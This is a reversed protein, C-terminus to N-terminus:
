EEDNLHQYQIQSSLAAVGLPPIDHARVDAAIGVEDVVDFFGLYAAHMYHSHCQGHFTHSAGVDLIRLFAHRVFAVAYNQNRHPM